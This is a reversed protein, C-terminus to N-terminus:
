TGVITRRHELAVCIRGLACSALRLSSGTLCGGEKLGNASEDQYHQISRLAPLGLLVGVGTHGSCM